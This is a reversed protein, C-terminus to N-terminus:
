AHTEPLPLALNAPLNRTISCNRLLSQCSYQSIGCRVLSSISSGVCYNLAQNVFCSADVESCRGKWYKVRGRNEPILMLLWLARGKDRERRLEM